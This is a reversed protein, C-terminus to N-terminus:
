ELERAALADLLGRVEPTLRIPHDKLGGPGFNADVDMTDRNFAFWIRAQDDRLGQERSRSLGMISMSQGARLVRDYGAERLARIFGRAAEFYDGGDERFFAEIADWSRKFEGELPAGREYYDALEDVEIDPYEARIESPRAQDVLWRKLLKALPGADSFPSAFLPHNDWVFAAYLTQGASEIVCERDASRFHLIHYGGGRDEIESGAGSSLDPEAATLEELLRRLRRRLDDTGSQETDAM